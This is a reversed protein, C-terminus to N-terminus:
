GSLWIAAARGKGQLHFIAKAVCVLQVNGGVWKAFIPELGMVIAGHTDM